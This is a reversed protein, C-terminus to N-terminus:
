RSIAVDRVGLNWPPTSPSSEELKNNGPKSHTLEEREYLVWNWCVRGRRLM